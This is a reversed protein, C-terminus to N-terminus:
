FLPILFDWNNKAEQFAKVLGEATMTSAEEEAEEFGDLEFWPHDDETVDDFARAKLGVQSPIFYQGEDLCDMIIAKQEDTLVGAVIDENHVKYNSADRYTFEIKTNM